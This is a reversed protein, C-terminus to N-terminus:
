ALLPAPQGRVLDHLFAALRKAQAESSRTARIYRAARRGQDLRVEEPLRLVDGMAQRIGAASDDDIWYVYPAFEDSLSALRTTLVPVGSALYEIIKSPFSYRVFSQDPPRPQVLLDASRYAELLQERSLLRPGVIETRQAAM